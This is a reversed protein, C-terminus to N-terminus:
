RPDYSYPDALRKAIKKEFTAAAEDVSTGRKAAIAALIEAAAAAYVERDAESNSSRRAATAIEVYRLEASRVTKMEVRHTHGPRYSPLDVVLPSGDVTVGKAIKAAKRAAAAEERATREDRQEVTEFADHRIPRDRLIEERVNPFCTLCTFQGAADVVETDTAGSLQTPWSWETTEYTNRCSTDTHVHGGANAVRYYRAWCGRRFYEANLTAILADQERGDARIADITALADGITNPRSLQGRYYDRSATDAPLARAAQETETAHMEQEGDFWTYVTVRSRGSGVRQGRSQHGLAAHLHEFATRIAQNGRRQDLQVTRIVEDVQPPTATTIDAPLAALARATYATAWRPATAANM